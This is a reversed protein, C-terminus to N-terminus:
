GIDGKGHMSEITAKITTSANAITDGLVIVDDKYEPAPADTHVLVDLLEILEVAMHRIIIFGDDVAAEIAKSM